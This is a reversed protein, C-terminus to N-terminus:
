SLIMLADHGKGNVHKFCLGWHSQIQYNFSFSEYLYSGVEMPGTGKYSSCSAGSHEREGGGERCRQRHMSFLGRSSM